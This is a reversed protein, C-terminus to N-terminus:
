NSPPAVPLPRQSQLFGWWLLFLGLLFVGHGPVFYTFFPMFLYWFLFVPLFFVLIPLRTRAAAEPSLRSSRLWLFVPLLCVVLWHVILLAAHPYFGATLDTFEFFALVGALICLPRSARVTRSFRPFLISVLVIIALILALFYAGRYFYNLASELWQPSSFEFTTWEGHGILVQYGSYSSGFFLPAYLTLRLSLLILLSGLVLSPTATLFKLIWRGWRQFALRIRARWGLNTRPEGLPLAWSLYEKVAVIFAPFLLVFPPLGCAIRLLEYRNFEKWHFIVAALYCLLFPLIWFATFLSFDSWKQWLTREPDRNAGGLLEPFYRFYGVAYVASCIALLIIVGLLDGWEDLLAARAITYATLVLLILLFLAVLYFKWSRKM